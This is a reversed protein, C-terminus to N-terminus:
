KSRKNKYWEITTKIGEEFSVESVFGIDNELESTDACLYMVQGEGYPIDGLGLEADPDISDRIIEIYEHLPRASGSGLCYVGGDRGKLALEVMARATDGSYMYDWIQEGATFSPREGEFLKHITSAILSREGDYPGYVSLIRVWIHKMGRDRCMNRSMHGACLKAMGYGNEPFAPTHSNLKGEVRGLEAQSGAGLFVMCGLRHALEVADLTYKVNTNQLYMDNRTAGTTGDWALHFFMDYTEGCMDLASMDSLSCEVKKILTHEPINADRASGKRCLVAVEINRKTLESILAMGVAGTAGTIIAKMFIGKEINVTLHKMQMIFLSYSLILLFLRFKGKIMSKINTHNIHVANNTKAPYQM